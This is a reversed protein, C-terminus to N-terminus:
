VIMSILIEDCYKHGLRYTAYKGVTGVLYLIACCIANPFVFKQFEPYM